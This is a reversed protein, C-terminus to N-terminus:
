LHSKAVDGLGLFSTVLGLHDFGWFVDQNGNGDTAVIWPLGCAGSAIAEETNKRVLKQMENTRSLQIIRAALEGDLSKHLVPEYVEPAQMGQKEVWFAHYFADMVNEVKDPCEVTCAAIARQVQSTKTEPYNPPLGPQWPIQMREAWRALDRAMYEEKNKKGWPPISVGAKVFGVMIVPVFSVDCNQFIGATQLHRIYRYALYAYSSQLDHYLTLRGRAM